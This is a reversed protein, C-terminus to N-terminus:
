PSCRDHWTQVMATAHGSPYRRQYEAILPRAAACDGAGVLSFAIRALAEVDYPSSPFRARFQTFCARSLAANIEIACRLYAAPMAVAARFPHVAIRDLAMRAVYIDDAGGSKVAVNALDLLALAAEPAQPADAILSKLMARALPPDRRLLSEAAAYRAAISGQGRRIAAIEDAMASDSARLPRLETVMGESRTGPDDVVRQQAAADPPSSSDDFPRLPAGAAVSTGGPASSSDVATAGRPPSAAGATGAQSTPAPQEATSAVRPTSAVGVTSTQSASAPSGVATAVRPTSAVGATSTQSAPAPSGSSTAIRPLSATDAQSTVPPPEEGTAVRPAAAPAVTPTTAAATVISAPEEARPPHAPTEPSSGAPPTAEAEPSATVARAEPGGGRDSGPQAAGPGTLADRRVADLLALKLEQKGLRPLDKQATGRVRDVDGAPGPAELPPRRAAAADHSGAPPEGLVRPIGRLIGRRSAFGAGVAVVVLAAATIAAIRRLQPVRRRPRPAAAAGIAEALGAAVRARTLDDLRPRARGLATLLHDLRDDVPERSM